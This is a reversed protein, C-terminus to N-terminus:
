LLKKLIIKFAITIFSSTKQGKKLSYDSYVIHVPRETYRLNKTSIEDIIDSAHEMGRHSIEIAHYAKRNMARLGNHTDTLRIHSIVNTFVVACRLMAKRLAPIGNDTDKIIFRSGLVIDTNDEIIPRILATIDSAKHQGDADFTVIIDPNYEESVYDIGTKLAAGQGRNIIHKLVETGTNRAETATNDTSGDDVVLINAYGTARIERLVGGIVSAENYAPIVIWVKPENMNM